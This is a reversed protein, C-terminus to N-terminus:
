TRGYREALAVCEKRLDPDEIRSFATLLAACEAASPGRTGGSAPPRRFTSEPVNLMRAIDRLLKDRERASQAAGDLDFGGADTM